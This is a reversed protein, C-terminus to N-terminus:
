NAAQCVETRTLFSRLWCHAPDQHHRQHWYLEYTIPEVELPLPLSTVNYRPKAYEAWGASSVFVLDSSECIGTASHFDDVAIVINRSLGLQALTQDIISLNNTVTGISIQGMKLWTTCSWPEDLCPHDTRVLCTLKDQHLKKSYLGPIRHQGCDLDDPLIVTDLEGTALQSVDNLRLNQIKIKVEPAQRIISGLSRQFILQNATEPLSIRFHRECRAPDFDAPQILKWLNELSLGLETHLAEARPTPILGHASRTFLPDGTIQRLRSLNKSVASQSLCLREAARSVSQEELLAQLCVLLNLNIRSLELLSM